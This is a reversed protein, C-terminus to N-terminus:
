PGRQTGTPGGRGGGLPQAAAVATFKERIAGRAAGSIAGGIRDSGFARWFLLFGWDLIGLRIM